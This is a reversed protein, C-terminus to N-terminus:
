ERIFAPCSPLAGPESDSPASMRFILFGHPGEYAIFPLKWDTLSKMSVGIDDNTVNPAYTMIHPPFWGLIGTFPNAPRNFDSLMYAVGARAPSEFTGDDFRSQVAARITIMSDGALLRDAVFMIKPIITRTGEADFCTPKISWPDDRNVICTFGNTSERDHLYGASTFVYVGAGERLYDPAASLALEYECESSLVTQASASAAWSFLLVSVMLLRTARCATM